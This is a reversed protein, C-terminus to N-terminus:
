DQGLSVIFEFLIGILIERAINVPPLPFCRLFFTEKIAEDGEGATTRHPISFSNTTHTTTASFLVFALRM